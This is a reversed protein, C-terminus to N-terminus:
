RFRECFHMFISSFPHFVRRFPKLFPEEVGQIWASRLEPSSPKSKVRSISAAASTSLLIGDFAVVVRSPLAWMLDLELRNRMEDQQFPM